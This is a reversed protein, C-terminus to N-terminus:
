SSAHDSPVPAKPTLVTLVYFVIFGLWSFLTSALIGIAKEKKSFRDNFLILCTPFVIFLVFSVILFLGGM